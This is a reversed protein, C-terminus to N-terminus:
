EERELAVATLAGDKVLGFFGFADNRTRLQELLVDGGRVSAIDVSLVRDDDLRIDVMRAKSKKKKRDKAVDRRVQRARVIDAFHAAFWGNLKPPPAPTRLTKGKPKGKSETMLADPESQDSPSQKFVGESWKGEKEGAPAAHVGGWQAYAAKGGRAKLAYGDKKIDNFENSGRGSSKKPDLRPYDVRKSTEADVPRACQVLEFITRSQAWDGQTEAQMFGTFADRLDDLSGPSQGPMVSRLAHDTVEIQVGGLGLPRGRGLTHWAQTDGGFDLAWLLAGLEMPRLNHVRIKATFSAGPEIPRFVSKHEDKVTKPLFPKLRPAARTVYRKWGRATAEGTMHATAGGSMYTTWIYKKRGKVQVEKPRGDFSSGRGHRLYYPYFSPKPAGFVATIPAMDRASTALRGMGVSIRGRLAGKPAKDLVADDRNGENVFGFMAEAMDPWRRPATQARRVVDSIRQDAALRFMGALGFARVKVQNEADRTLLFFVPVERSRNEPKQWYGWEDNPAPTRKGQQRGDSHIFEFDKVQDEKLGYSYGADGFFFFDSKKSNNPQGTFVLTGVEFGRARPDVEKFESVIPVKAGPAIPRAARSNLPGVGFRGQLSGQYSAYKEHAGQEDGPKFKPGGLRQLHRHHVKAYHCAQIRWENPDPDRILWGANVKGVVAKKYDDHHLDRFGLKDDNFPGLRGFTAIEVVSRLMGRLSSGPIAYRGQGDKYFTEVGDTRAGSGLFVPTRATIRISLSGSIGDEFPQDHSVCGAWEPWVRKLPPPVFNYPSLLDQLPVSQNNSM